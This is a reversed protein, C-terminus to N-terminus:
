RDEPSAAIVWQAGHGYRQFSRKSGLLKADGPLFAFRRGQTISEPPLQGHYERLLPKDEFLELQSPGGAMFLFIVNKIRPPVHYASLMGLPNRIELGSGGGDQAFGEQSMLARFALSGIGLGSASLFERRASRLFDVNGRMVGERDDRM